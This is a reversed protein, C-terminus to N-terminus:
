IGWFDGFMQAVKSHYNTALLKLFDGLITVSSPAKGVNSFNLVNIRVKKFSSQHVELKQSLGFNPKFNM